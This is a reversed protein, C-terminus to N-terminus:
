AAAPNALLKVPKDKKRSSVKHKSANKIEKKVQKEHSYIRATVKMRIELVCDAPDKIDITISGM